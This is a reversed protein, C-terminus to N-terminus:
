EAVEIDSIHKMKTKPDILFLAGHFDMCLWSKNGVNNLLTLEIGRWRGELVEFKKLIMTLNKM